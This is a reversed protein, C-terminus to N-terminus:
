GRVTELSGSLSTPQAGSGRIEIPAADADWAEIRSAVMRLALPRAVLALLTLGMVVLDTRPSRREVYLLGLRSKLPRIATMYFEIPDAAKDLLRGEDFFLISAFDTIGPRVSLLDMEAPSYGDVGGDRVDPRPGVISMEGRLVNWLQPLEDIKCRRLWAGLPTVRPDSRPTLRGGLRDAGPVMTRLKYMAFDRGGRGVRPARYIPSGGDQLWIALAAAVLVPAALVLVLSAGAMDIARKISTPGRKMRRM